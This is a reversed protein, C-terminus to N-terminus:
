YTPCYYGLRTDDVAVRVEVHGLDANNGAPCRHPVQRERQVRDIGTKVLLKVSHNVNSGWLKSYGLRSGHVLQLVLAGHAHEGADLAVELGFAEFVVLVGATVQRPEKLPSITLM